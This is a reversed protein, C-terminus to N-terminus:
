GGDCETAEQTLALVQRGLERRQDEPRQRLGLKQSKRVRWVGADAQGHSARHAGPFSRRVKLGSHGRGVPSFVPFWIPTDSSSIEVATCPM